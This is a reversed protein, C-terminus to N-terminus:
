KKILLKWNTEFWTPLSFSWFHFKGEFLAIRISLMAANQCFHCCGSQVYTDVKVLIESYQAPLLSGSGETDQWWELCCVGDCGEGDVCVLFSLFGFASLYVSQWVEVSFMFFPAVFVLFRMESHIFGCKGEWMVISNARVIGSIVHSVTAYGKLVM